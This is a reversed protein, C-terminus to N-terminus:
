QEVLSPDIIKEEIIRVPAPLKGSKFINALDKAENVTFDGTIQSRGGSIESQVTPYSCVYGDLVIAVSKGINNRTLRKWQRAGEANMTMSVEAKASLHGFAQAADKVVDAQMSTKGNRDSQLAVVQVFKGAADYPKVTYAVKVDVPFLKRIADDKLYVNLAATDKVACFGVVPGTNLKNTQDVNPYLLAYLPNEIAFEEFSGINNPLSEIEVLLDRTGETTETTKEAIFEANIIAVEATERLYSNASELGQFLETYEYTEWFELSGTSQLLKRLREHDKIGPLEILIRALVCKGHFM